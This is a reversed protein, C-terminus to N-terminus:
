KEDVFDIAEVIDRFNFKNEILYKYAEYFVNTDLSEFDDIVINSPAIGGSYYM